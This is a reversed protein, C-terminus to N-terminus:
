GFINNWEREVYQVRFVALTIRAKWSYCVLMNCVTLSFFAHVHYITNNGNTQQDKKKERTFM